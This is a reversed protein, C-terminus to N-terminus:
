VERNKQNKTAIYKEMIILINFLSVIKSWSLPSPREIQIFENIIKLKILTAYDTGGFDFIKEYSVIKNLELNKDKLISNFITRALQSFACDWLLQKTSEHAGCRECEDSDTM